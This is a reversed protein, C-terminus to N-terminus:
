IQVFKMSYLLPMHFVPMWSSTKDFDSCVSVGKLDSVIVLWLSCSIRCHQLWQCRQQVHRLQIVLYPTWPLHNVPLSLFSIWLRYLILVAVSQISKPDIWYGKHNNFYLWVQKHNVTYLMNIYLNIFYIMSYSEYMYMAEKTVMSIFYAKISYAFARM